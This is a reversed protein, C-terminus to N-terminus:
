ISDIIKCNTFNEGYKIFDDSDNTFEENKKYLYLSEDKITSNEYEKLTVYKKDQMYYINKNDYAYAFNIGNFGSNSKFEIIEDDTEFAIVNGDEVYIYSRKDIEFLFNDNNGGKFM